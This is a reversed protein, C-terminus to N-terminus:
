ETVISLLEYREAATNMSYSSNYKFFERVVYPLAEDRKGHLVVQCCM